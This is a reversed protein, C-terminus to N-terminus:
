FTAEGEAYWTDSVVELYFTGSTSFTDLYVVTPTDTQVYDSGIVQGNSNVLRVSANGINYLTVEVLGQSPYACAEIIIFDMTREINHGPKIQDTVMDIIIPRSESNFKGM